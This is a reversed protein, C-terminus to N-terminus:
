VRSPRADAGVSSRSNMRAREPRASAPHPCRVRGVSTACTLRDHDGLRRRPHVSDYITEAPATDLEYHKVNGAWYRLIRGLEEVERGPIGGATLDVELTFKM